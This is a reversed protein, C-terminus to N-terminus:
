KKPKAGALRALLRKMPQPRFFSFLWNQLPSYDDPFTQLVKPLVQLKREDMAVGHWPLAKSGALHISGDFGSFIWTVDSQDARLARPSNDAIGFAAFYPRDVFFANWSLVCVLEYGKSNALRNLAALSAGQKIGPDAPQVFDVETPITPNFEICVVKPRYTRVADWAHYDNGDIDISLFDFDKPIASASLIRDLGSAADLGVFANVPTVGPNGAYTEKLTTFKVPNAEIMVAKYGAELILKRVNSLHIGDWAGFEVCWQNRSPLLALIAAIVGDEGAQSYTNARSDALWHLERTTTM